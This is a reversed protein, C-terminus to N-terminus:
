GIVMCLKYKVNQLFSFKYKVYLNSDISSIPSICMKKRHLRIDIYM